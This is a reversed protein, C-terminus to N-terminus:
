GTSVRCPVCVCAKVGTRGAQLQPGWPWASGPLLITPTPVQVNLARQEMEATCRTVLFPVEEPFDRPLQLFDVGFLASRAPLRRHGCLILLTELCRKHCTLFCQPHLGPNFPDLPAPVQLPGAVITYGPRPM